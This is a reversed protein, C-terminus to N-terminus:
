QKFDTYQTSLFIVEQVMVDEKNIIEVFANDDFLQRALTAKIIRKIEDNYAVFVIATREKNNIYDQFRVVIDDSVEFNNIFDYKSVNDYVSRDKDLEEFVFYDFHGKRRLYNITENDFLRDIPVFVDPIIGGGGYVVKGKPTTFKLSDDVEINEEEALEGTRLRKYYDNHYNSNDGNTYPKQISRGTPTYYRSVTLRVASGDGLAMERQVLGKGYSRRGVIVGKDNDQLAGAIVESASASNENILIYIEGDEFDGRSTAFTQEERGKKDRTFLILKDDELFEDAIQEAIGLFGGPNDRLDLALKTAGQDKLEELADKFEKFTSEAFRNMKIYGLDDSLMYAADVSKIPINKRKVNFQLLEEEGKRYVTLKVKTNKDGKLKELIKDNIFNSGFLTDGDAMLIRDGSIIGARESPGDETPRIVAISDRYPYFNVGIGVFDGKMNETIRKLDEKPIYTSHPDLNDLIGNVTVDVISDTNVDDVYEYDIYDILRNLKDKKSNTTFLNDSTDTFNLKGGITVGAAIAVGIILPLYKRKTAM